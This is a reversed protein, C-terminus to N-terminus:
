SEAMSLSAHVIAEIRISPRVMVDSDLSRVADPKWEVAVKKCSLRPWSLLHYLFFVVVCVCLRTRGMETDHPEIEVHAADFGFLLQPEDGTTEAHKRSGSWRTWGCIYDVRM